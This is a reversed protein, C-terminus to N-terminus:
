AWGTVTTNDRHPRNGRFRTRYGAHQAANVFAAEFDRPDVTFPYNVAHSRCINMVVNIEMGTWEDCDNQFYAQAHAWCVWVAATHRNHYEYYRPACEVVVM